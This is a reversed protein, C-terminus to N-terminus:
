YFAPVTSRASDAVEGEISCFELGLCAQAASVASRTALSAHLPASTAEFSSVSTGPENAVSCRWRHTRSRGESAVSLLLGSAVRAAARGRRLVV